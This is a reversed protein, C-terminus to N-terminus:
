RLDATTRLEYSVRQQPFPRIKDKVAQALPTREAFAENLGERSVAECISIMTEPNNTQGSKGKL